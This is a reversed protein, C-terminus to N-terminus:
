CEELDENWYMNYKKWKYNSKQMYEEPYIEPKLHQMLGARHAKAILKKMNAHQPRCLGLVLRPVIEGDQQVFQSVILVDTYKLDLNLKCLVCVDPPGDVKALHKTRSSEYIKGEVTTVNDETTEIVERLNLAATSHFFRKEVHRLIHQNKNQILSHSLKHFANVFRCLGSMTPDRRVHDNHGM